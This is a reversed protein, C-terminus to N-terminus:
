KEYDEEDEYSLEAIRTEAEEIEKNLAEVRAVIEASWGRKKVYPWKLRQLLKLRSEWYSLSEWDDALSTQINKKTEEALPKWYHEEM